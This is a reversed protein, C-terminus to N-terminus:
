LIKELQNILANTDDPRGVSIRLFNQLNNTEYHRVFIGGSALNDKIEKATKGSTKCLVFNSYSTSPTLQPIRSLEEILRSREAQIKAVNIALYKRDKLSALAATNAAVNINYPQKTKWLLSMLWNPFAGFGVRLGALGAWKSFTRLVVLNDRDKVMGILSRHSGLDLDKQTFEVYAEDLVILASLSLLYHIEEDSLLSGDPNNPSCIFIIKPQYKEVAVRIAAMDLSFDSKRPINICTAFNLIADFNYMGFTPTFNFVIDGPEILVRLLLDILEDAGAGAMLNDIPVQYNEALAARLTRSEPDPYINIYDLTQLAEFVLPSPGYLNENADLKIIKNEPIGMKSALITV